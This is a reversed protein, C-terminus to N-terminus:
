GTLSGPWKSDLQKGTLQGRLRDQLRSNNKGLHPVQYEGKSFKRLNRDAWKEMKDLDSFLLLVMQHHCEEWNQIMHSIGLLASQGMM